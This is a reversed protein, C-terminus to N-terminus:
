SDGGNRRRGLEAVIEALQAIAESNRDNSAALGAIAEGNSKNILFLANIDDDHSEVAYKLADLDRRTREADAEVRTMRADSRAFSKEMQAQWEETRAQWEETRAQREESNMQAAILAAIRERLDGRESRFQRTMMVVVRRLTTMHEENKQMGAAFQAQQQLIFDITRQREEDTM